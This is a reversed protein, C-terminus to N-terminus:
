FLSRHFFCNQLTADARTIFNSGHMLRRSHTLDIGLHSFIACVVLVHLTTFRGTSRPVRVNKAGAKPILLCGARWRSGRLVRRALLPNSLKCVFTGGSQPPDLGELPDLCATMCRGRAANCTPLLRAAYLARQLSQRPEFGIGLDAPLWRALTEWDVAVPGANPLCNGHAYVFAMVRFGVRRHAVTNSGDTFMWGFASSSARM